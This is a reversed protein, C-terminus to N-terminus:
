YDKPKSKLIQICIRQYEADAYAAVRRWKALKREYTPWRMWKPKGPPENWTAWEKGGLEGNLKAARRQLRLFRGERQCAYGLRYAHRSWFHWGGNPLYLQTTRRGTRPCRFWWRRGGYTPVTSTLRIRDRVVQDGERVDRYSPHVRCCAERSQIRRHRGRGSDAIM